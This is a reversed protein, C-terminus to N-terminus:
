ISISPKTMSFREAIEGATLECCGVSIGSNGGGPLASSALAQFVAEM